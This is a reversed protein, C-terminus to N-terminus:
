RQSLSSKTGLDEMPISEAATQESYSDTEIVHAKEPTKVSHLEGHGSEIDIESLDPLRYFPGDELEGRSVTTSLESQNRKIRNVRASGITPVNPGSRSGDNSKKSVSFLNGLGVKTAALHVVPRLIPLCASIIGACMEIDSWVLLPSLTYSIDSRSYNFLVWTRYSSAFM